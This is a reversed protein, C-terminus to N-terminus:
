RHQPVVIAQESVYTRKVIVREALAQIKDNQANWLGNQKLFNIEAHTSVLKAALKKCGATPEGLCVTLLNISAEEQLNSARGDLQFEHRVDEPYNKQDQCPAINQKFCAARARETGTSCQAVAYNRCQKFWDAYEKM